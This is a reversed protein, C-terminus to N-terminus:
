TRQANSSFRPNNGVNTPFLGQIKIPGKIFLPQLSFRYVTENCGRFIKFAGKIALFSTCYPIISNKLTM